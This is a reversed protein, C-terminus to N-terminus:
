FCAHVQSSICSQWTVPPQVVCVSLLLQGPNIEGVVVEAGRCAGELAAAAAARIHHCVATLLQVM